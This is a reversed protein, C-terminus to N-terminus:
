FRHTFRGYFLRGRPDHVKTDYGLNTQVYPPDEDTVNIIGLTFQTASDEGHDWLYGYQIDATTHSDIRAGPESVVVPTFSLSDMVRQDNEYASTYNLVIAASHSGMRWTFPANAQWEPISRAFNNFNRNGAADLEIAPSVSKDTLDYKFVNTAQLGASFEGMGDVSFRYEVGIDIGDTVVEGSNIYQAVIYQIPLTAGISQIVPGVLPYADPSIRVVRPDNPNQNVIQQANERVIIDDIEFRWYDLTLSLDEVPEYVLGLNFAKSKEADLDQNGVPVVARFGTANNETIEELVVLTGGELQNLSPERFSTSASGRLVLNDRAQWRLAVKPDVSDGGDNGYDEYRLALQMEVSEHWPVSLEAFAAYVERSREFGSFSVRDDDPNVGTIFAYQSQAYADNVDQQLTERRYQIGMAVGIPREDLTWPQGSIVADATLLSSERDIKATDVVQNILASSNQRGPGFPNWQGSNILSQLTGRLVDENRVSYENESYQIGADLSWTADLEGEIGAAIRDTSNKRSNVSDPSSNGLARGIYLLDYGYPNNPHSQPITLFDLIPFTPSTTLSDADSDAYQLQLSGTWQASFEHELNAMLQLREEATVLQYSPIFDLKCFGLNPNGPTSVPMGEGAACAPDIIPTLGGGSLLAALSAGAQAAGPAAPNSVSGGVFSPIPIYAGPNGADSYGTGATFGKEDAQLPTRNFYNIGVVVHTTDNGAGWLLGADMDEQSHTDTAQYSGTIELGEFSQRTMFNVVGAVADSGYTAAAGEKLIETRELMIPPIINIDVFSAGDASSSASHTVRRGDVLVLTSGLGLGRLNVSATTQSFNQTFTDTQFESGVNVPISKVFDTVTAAGSTEFASRDFSSVPSPADKPTRKIYSGTVVVEEVTDQAFSGGPAGALSASAVAICLSTHTFRRQVM